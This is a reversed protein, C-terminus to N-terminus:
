GAWSSVATWRATSDRSSRRLCWSTSRALMDTINGTDKRISWHHGDVERRTGRRPAVRHIAETITFNVVHPLAKVGSIAEHVAPTFM